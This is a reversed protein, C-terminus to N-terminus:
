VSFILESAFCDMYPPPIYLDSSFYKVPISTHQNLISSNGHVLHCTGMFNIFITINYQLMRNCKESADIM